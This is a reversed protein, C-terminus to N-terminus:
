RIDRLLFVNAEAVKRIYESVGLKVLSQSVRGKVDQGRNGYRKGKGEKKGMEQPLDWSPNPRDEAKEEEKGPKAQRSHEGGEKLQKKM